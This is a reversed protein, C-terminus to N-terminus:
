LLLQACDIKIDNAAGANHRGITHPRPMKCKREDDENARTNLPDTSGIAAGALGQNALSGANSSRGAKKLADEKLVL